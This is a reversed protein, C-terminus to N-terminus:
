AVAPLLPLLRDWVRDLTDNYRKLESKKYHADMWEEM